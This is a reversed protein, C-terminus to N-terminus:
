ISLQNNYTNEIAYIFLFMTLIRYSYKLSFFLAVM